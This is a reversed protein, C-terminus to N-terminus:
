KQGWRRCLACGEPSHYQNTRGVSKIRIDSISTDHTITTKAEALLAKRIIKEPASNLYDTRARKEADTSSTAITEYYITVPINLTLGVMYTKQKKKSM